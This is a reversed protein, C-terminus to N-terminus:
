TGKTYIIEDKEMQFATTIWYREIEFSVVVLIHCLSLMNSRKEFLLVLIASSGEGANKLPGYLALLAWEGSGHKNVSWFKAFLKQFLDSLM